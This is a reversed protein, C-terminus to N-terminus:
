LWFDLLLAERQVMPIWHTADEPNPFSLPLSMKDWGLFGWLFHHQQQSMFSRQSILVMFQGKYLYQLCVNLVSM